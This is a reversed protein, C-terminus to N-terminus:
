LLTVLLLATVSVTLAILVAVRLAKGWQMPTNDNAPRYVMNPPSALSAFTSFDLAMGTDAWFQRRRERPRQWVPIERGSETFLKCLSQATERSKASQLLGFLGIDPRDVTKKADELASDEGKTDHAGM